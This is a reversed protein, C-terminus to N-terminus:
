PIRRPLSHLYIFGPVGTLPLGLNPWFLDKKISGPFTQAALGERGTSMDEQNPTM